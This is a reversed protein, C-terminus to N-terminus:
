GPRKDRQLELPRRQRARLTIQAADFLQDLEVLREDQVVLLDEFRLVHLQEGRRKGSSSRFRESVLRAGDVPPIVPDVDVNRRQALPTVRQDLATGSSDRCRRSNEVQGSRKGLFGPSRQLCSEGIAM